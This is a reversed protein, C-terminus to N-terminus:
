AGEPNKFEKSSQNKRKEYFFWGFPILLLFVYSILSITGGTQIVKPEFRFEITNNGAPVEMGRLVYNVRSHPKLEGNIYANWGDKYYIESFVAFQNEKASSEYILHDLAYNTL